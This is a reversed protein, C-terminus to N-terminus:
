AIVAECFLVSGRCSHMVDVIKAKAADLQTNPSSPANAAFNSVQRMVPLKVMSMQVWGIKKDKGELVERTFFKPGIGSGPDRLTLLLM